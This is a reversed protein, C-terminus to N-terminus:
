GAPCSYSEPLNITGINKQITNGTEKNLLRINGKPEVLFVDKINNNHILNRLESNEDDWMNKVEDASRCVSKQKGESTKTVFRVDGNESQWIVLGNDMRKKLDEEEWKKTENKEGTPPESFAPNAARGEAEMLIAAASVLEKALELNDGTIFNGGCIGLAADVLNVNAGNIDFVFMFHDLPKDVELAVIPQGDVYGVIIAEGTYGEAATLQRVADDILAKSTTKRRRTAEITELLGTWVEDDMNEVFNALKNGVNAPYEGAKVAERIQSVFLNKHEYDFDQGGDMLEKVYHEVFDRQAKETEVDGEDIPMSPKYDSDQLAKLARLLEKIDKKSSAVYGTSCMDLVAEQLKLKDGKQAYDLNLIASLGPWKEGVQIPVDLGDAEAKLEDALVAGVLGAESLVNEAAQVYPSDGEEDQALKYFHGAYRILMPSIQYTQNTSGSSTTAM